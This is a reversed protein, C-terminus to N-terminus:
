KNKVHESDAIQNDFENFRKKEKNSKKPSADAIESNGEILDLRRKIDKVEALIVDVKKYMKRTSLFNYITVVLYVGVFGGLLVQLTNVISDVTSVWPELLMTTTNVDVVM